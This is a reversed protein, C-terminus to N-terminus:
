LPGPHDFLCRGTNLYQECEGTRRFHACMEAEPNRPLRLAPGTVAWRLPSGGEAPRLMSTDLCLNKYQVVDKAVSKKAALVNNQAGASQSALELRDARGEAALQRKRAEDREKWAQSESRQSKRLQQEAIRLHAELDEKEQSARELAKEAERRVWREEEHLRQWDALAEDQARECRAQRAKAEQRARTAAARENERRLREAEPLWAEGKIEVMTSAVLAETRKDALEKELEKRAAKAASLEKELEEIRGKEVVVTDADEVVHSAHNLGQIASFTVAELKTLAEKLGAISSSSGVRAKIILLERQFQAECQNFDELLEKAAIQLCTLLSARRSILLLAAALSFLM